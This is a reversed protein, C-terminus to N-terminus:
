ELGYEEKLKQIEAKVERGTEREVAEDVWRHYQDWMDQPCYLDMPLAVPASGDPFQTSLLPEGGEVRDQVDPNRLCMHCPSFM